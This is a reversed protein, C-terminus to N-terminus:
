LERHKDAIPALAKEFSLYVRYKATDKDIYGLYHISHPTRSKSDEIISEILDAIQTKQDTTM